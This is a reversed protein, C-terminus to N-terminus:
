GDALVIQQKLEHAIDRSFLAVHTIQHGIFLDRAPDSPLAALHAVAIELFFLGISFDLQVMDILRDYKDAVGVILRRNAAQKTIEVFVKRDNRQGRLFVALLVAFFRVIRQQAVQLEGIDKGLKAGGLQEIGQVDLLDFPNARQEVFALLDMNEQLMIGIRVGDATRQRQALEQAAVARGRRDDGKSRHGPRFIQRHDIQQFNLDVADGRVVQVFVARTERQDVHLRGVEFLGEAADIQDDVM